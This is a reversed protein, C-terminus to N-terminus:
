EVEKYPSNGPSYWEYWYKGLLGHQYHINSIEIWILSDWKPSHRIAFWFSHQGSWKWESCHNDVYAIYFFVNAYSIDRYPSIARYPNNAECNEDNNFELYSLNGFRFVENPNDHYYERPYLIIFLAILILAIKNRKTIKM